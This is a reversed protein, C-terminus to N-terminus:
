TRAEMPVTPACGAWFVMAHVDDTCLHGLRKERERRTLSIIERCRAARKWSQMRAVGPTEARRAPGLRILCAHRRRHHELCRMLARERENRASGKFRVCSTSTDSARAGSTKAVRWRRTAHHCATALGSSSAGGNAREDNQALLALRGNGVHVLSTRPTAVRPRHEARM